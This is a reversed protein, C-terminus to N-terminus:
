AVKKKIRWSHQYGSFTMWGPSGATVGGISTCFACCFDKGDVTFVAHEKGNPELTIDTIETKYVEGGEASELVGGIWEAKKHVFQSWLPYKRGNIEIPPLEDSM